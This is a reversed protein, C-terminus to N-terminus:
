VCSLASELCDAVEGEATCKPRLALAWIRPNAVPTPELASMPPGGGGDVGAHEVLDDDQLGPLPLGRGAELDVLVAALELRHCHVLALLQRMEDLKAIHNARFQDLM